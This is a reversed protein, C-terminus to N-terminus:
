VWNITPLTLHTYSVAEQANENGSYIRPANTLYNEGLQESIYKRADNISDKSLSPADTRMYTIYGAEYLKQAVTMTRKVNFGLRTSASQQLTSTIFPPKPKVKVPKKSIENIKLENTNLQHEILEADDKKLLPDSKKRNLEFKVQVNEQRKYM